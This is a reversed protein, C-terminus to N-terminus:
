QFGADALALHIVMLLGYPMMAMVNMRLTSLLSAQLTRIIHLSSSHYIGNMILSQSTLMINFLKYGFYSIIVPSM